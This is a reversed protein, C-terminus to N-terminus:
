TRDLIGGVTEDYYKFISKLNYAKELKPAAAMAWEKPLTSGKRFKKLRDKFSQEKVNVWSSGEIFCRGDIKEAPVPITDYDLDLFKVEKMFDMHGSFSTAIVPLGCVAADLIPLGWGEGRTPAVLAKITDSKYMATIENNDMLGHALYFRPYPEERIEKLVNTFMETTIHRDKVTMRGMNTKLIVGVDPDNKFTEAIWKLCYFTNKRDTDPTQGTLQGFVLFNFKTPLDDLGAKLQEYGESAEHRCTYAEPVCSIRDPSLGSNTFVSKTFTSPVIVHSMKECALVWNHSCRDTEVGATIGINVKALNTDWEDPLQIQLSLDAVVGEPFPASRMMVKEILGNQANPNIYYTCIGWPVIQASVNWGKSLAWQFVQRAHEGYGTVSLLPGKVIVNM